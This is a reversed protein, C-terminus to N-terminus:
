VPSGCNPCKKVFKSVMGQWGCACRKREHTSPGTQTKRGKSGFLWRGGFGLGLVVAAVMIVTLLQWVM